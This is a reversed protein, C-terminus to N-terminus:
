KNKLLLFLGFSKLEGCAVNQMDEVDKSMSFCLPISSVYSNQQVSFLLVSHSLAKHLGNGSDPPSVSIM